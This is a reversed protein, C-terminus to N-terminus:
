NDGEYEGSLSFDKMDPTISQLDNENLGHMKGMIRGTIEGNAISRIMASTTDGQMYEFATSGIRNVPRNMQAVHYDRDDLRHSENKAQKLLQKYNDGNWDGMPAYQGYSHIAEIVMLVNLPNDNDVYGCSDVASKISKESYNMLDIEALSVNYQSQDEEGTADWMNILEIVHYTTDDLQRYWKGGCQRVDRDGTLFHFKTDM